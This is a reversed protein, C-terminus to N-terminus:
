SVARSVEKAIAARVAPVIENAWRDLSAIDPTGGEASFLLFGSAGHDVVAVTLEEIWQDASGGIWRGDPDRTAALPRDTIQGPFNFVTRIEGPDRGAAL